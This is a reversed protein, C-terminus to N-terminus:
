DPKQYITVGGVLTREVSIGRLYGDDALPNASLIV